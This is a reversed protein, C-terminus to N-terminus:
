ATAGRGQWRMNKGVGEGEMGARLAMSADVSARAMVATSRRAPPGADKTVRISPSDRRFSAEPPHPSRTYPRTHTPPGTPPYQEPAGPMQCQFGRCLNYQRGQTRELWDVTPQQSGSCANHQKLQEVAQRRRQRILAAAAGPGRREGHQRQQRLFNRLCPVDAAYRRANPLATSLRRTTRDLPTSEMM